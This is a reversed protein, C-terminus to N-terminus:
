IWTGATGAHGFDSWDVLAEQWFIDEDWAFDSPVANNSKGFADAVQKTGELQSALKAEYASRGRRMAVAYARFMDEEEDGDSARARKAAASAGEFNKELREFVATLDGVRSAHALDWEDIGILLLRALITIIDALQIWIVSPLAFYLDSPILFYVDFYAMISILCSYRLELYPFNLHAPAHHLKCLGVEYLSIRVRHYHLLFPINAQMDQTFLKEVEAELRKVIIGIPTMSNWMPQLDDNPLSQALKRVAIQTRVLKALWIDTPFENHQEISICCDEVYPTYRM